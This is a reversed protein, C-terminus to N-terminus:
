ITKVTRAARSGACTTRDLREPANPANALCIMCGYMCCTYYVDLCIGLNPMSLSMYMMHTDHISPACSFIHVVIPGLQAYRMCRLIVKIEHDSPGPSLRSEGPGGRVLREAVGPFSWHPKAMAQLASYAVMGRSIQMLTVEPFCSFESNFTNILNEMIAAGEVGFVVQAEAASIVSQVGHLIAASTDLTVETVRGVAEFGTVVTRSAASVM